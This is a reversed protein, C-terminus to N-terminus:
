GIKISFTWDINTAKNITAAVSCYKTSALELAHQMANETVDGTVTFHVQMDTWYRPPDEARSGTVKVSLSKLDQRKKQLILVIDIGACAGLAPLLIEAPSPGARTEGDFTMSQGSPPTAAFQQGQTWELTSEYM